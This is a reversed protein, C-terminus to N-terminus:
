RYQSADTMKGAFYFPSQQQMVVREVLAQRLAALATVDVDEGDADVVLAFHIDDASPDANAILLRHGSGVARDPDNVLLAQTKGEAFLQGPALGDAVLADETMVLLHDPVLHRPLFLETPAESTRGRWIVMLWKNEVFLAEADDPKLQVWDIREGSQDLATDNYHFSM